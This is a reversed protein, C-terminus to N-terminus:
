KKFVLTKLNNNLSTSFTAIGGDDFFDIIMHSAKAAAANPHGGGGLFQALELAKGDLPGGSRFSLVVGDKYQAYMIIVEEQELGPAADLNFGLQPVLVAKVPDQGPLEVTGHVAKKSFMEKDKRLSNQYLYGGVNAATREKAEDWFGFVHRMAAVREEPKRWMVEADLFATVAKSYNRVKIEQESAGNYLNLDDIAVANVLVMRPFISIEENSALMGVLIECSARHADFFFDVNPQPLCALQLASTNAEHHDVVCVSRVKQALEILDDAKPVSDFFYVEDDSKFDFQPIPDGTHYQCHHVMNGRYFLFIAASLIGDLDNDHFLYRRM